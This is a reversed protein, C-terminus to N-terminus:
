KGLSMRQFTCRYTLWVVTNVDCLTLSLSCRSGGKCVVNGNGVVAYAGTVFSKGGVRNGSVLGGM